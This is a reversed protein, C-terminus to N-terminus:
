GGLLGQSQEDGGPYDAQSGVHNGARQEISLTDRYRRAVEARYREAGDNGKGDCEIENVQWGKQRQTAEKAANM